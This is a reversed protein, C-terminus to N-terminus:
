EYARMNSVLKEHTDGLRLEELELLASTDSDDLDFVSTLPKQRARGKMAGVKKSMTKVLATIDVVGGASTTVTVPLADADRSDNPGAFATAAAAAVSVEATTMAGVAGEAPAPAGTGEMLSAGFAGSVGSSVLTSSGTVVPVGAVTTPIVVAGGEAFTVEHLVGGPVAAAAAGAAMIEDPKGEEREAANTPIAVASVVAAAPVVMAGDHREKEDKLGCGAVTIAVHATPTADLAEGQLFTPASHGPALVEYTDYFAHNPRLRLRAREPGEDM